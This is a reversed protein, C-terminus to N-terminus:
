CGGRQFSPNGCTGEIDRMGLIVQALYLADLVDIQGSEDVDAAFFICPDTPVPYTGVSIAAIDYADGMLLFGDDNVDGRMTDPDGILAPVAYVLVASLLVAVFVILLKINKM